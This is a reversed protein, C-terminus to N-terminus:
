RKKKFERLDFEDTYRLLKIDARNLSISHSGAVSIEMAGM